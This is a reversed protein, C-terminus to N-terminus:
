VKHFELESFVQQPSNIELPTKGNQFVAEDGDRGAGYFPHFIVLWGNFPLRAPPPLV